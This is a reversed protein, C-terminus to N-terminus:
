SHLRPDLLKPDGWANVLSGSGDIEIIPPALTGANLDGELVDQRNLIFVHDRADVCVGGLGGLVWRDPFPKPWSADVEDRPAASQARPSPASTLAAALAVIVRVGIWIEARWRELSTM